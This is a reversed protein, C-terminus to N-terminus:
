SINGAKSDIKDQLKKLEGPSATWGRKPNAAAKDIAEQAEEIRDPYYDVLFEAYWLWYNNRDPYDQLLEDYIQQAKELEGVKALCNALRPRFMYGPNFDVAKQAADVAEKYKGLTRLIGAFKFWYLGNNPSTELLERALIEGKQPSTKELLDLKLINMNETTVKRMRSLSEAKAFAKEAENLKNPRNRFLFDAYKYWCLQCGCKETMLKYYPEAEDPRDLEALANALFNYFLGNPEITVAKKAANLAQKYEGLNRLSDSYYAWFLPDNPENILLQETAAKLQAPNIMELKNVIAMRNNPDIALSANFQVLAEDKRAIIKLFNGYVAHFHANNPDLQLAKEYSAEAINIFESESSNPDMAKITSSLALLLHINPSNPRKQSLKKAIQLSENKEGNSLAGFYDLISDFSNEADPIDELKPVPTLAASMLNKRNILELISRINCGAANDPTTINVIGLFRKNIGKQLVGLVGAIKGTEPILMPSGSWGRVVHKTGKLKLATSSKKTYNNLVPLLEAKIEKGPRFTKESNGQNGQPRSAILIKKAVALEAESCLSLAPHSPWSAKLIALDAAKDIAVIEFDFVDGYYPSFVLPVISMTTKSKDLFDDVCHAATLLLTGDGIAFAVKSGKIAYSIGQRYELHYLIVIARTDFVITKQGGQQQNKVSKNTYYGSFALFGEIVIFTIITVILTILISGSKRMNVGM